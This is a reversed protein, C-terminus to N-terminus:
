YRSPIHWYGSSAHWCSGFVQWCGCLVCGNGKPIHWCGNLTWWFSCFTCIVWCISRGLTLRRPLYPVCVHFCHISTWAQRRCVLARSQGRFPYRKKKLFSINIGLVYERIQISIYHVERCGSDPLFPDAFKATRWRSSTYYKRLPMFICHFWLIKKEWAHHTMENLLFIKTSCNWTEFVM